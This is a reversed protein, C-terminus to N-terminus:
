TVQAIARVTGIQAHAAQALPEWVELAPPPSPQSSSSLLPCVRAANVANKYLEAVTKHRLHMQIHTTHQTNHTLTHTHSLSLSIAHTHTRTHQTHAHTHTHTHTLRLHLCVRSTSLLPASFVM